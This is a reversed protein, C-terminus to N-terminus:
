APKINHNVHFLNGPDYTKKIQALREFNGRYNEKVRGQGDDSLFNIYGGKDTHPELAKAYNKVWSVVEDQKSPEPNM